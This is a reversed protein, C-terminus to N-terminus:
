EQEVDANVPASLGKEQQMDYEIQKAAAAEDQGLLEDIWQDEFRM